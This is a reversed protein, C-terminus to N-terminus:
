NVRNSAENKEQNDSRVVNKGEMYEDIFAQQKDVKEGLKKIAKVSLYIYVGILIVLIFDM